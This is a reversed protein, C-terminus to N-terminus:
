DLHVSQTLTASVHQHGHLGLQFGHGIMEQVQSANLYDSRVPPGQISHHWVAIKLDYFHGCDRLAIACQGIADAAIAGSYGFCDNGAISNFAAIVIRRNCFEFLQFCRARDIQVRLDVDEYFSEIFDWYYDLRKQYVAADSIRYLVREKWSWRYISGPEILAEYLKDPYEADPVPEMARYATNWCVDHNGPVLVMRSKDGELFRECLATLFEGAVTYQDRICQPWNAAGIQAGQILDGSVVIAEPPPIRPTEGMYRDCDGLLSALLSSNDLPEERSRHLDSIHLITFM